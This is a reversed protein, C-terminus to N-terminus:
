GRVKRLHYPLGCGTDAACYGRASTYKIRTKSHAKSNMMPAEAFGSKDRLRSIEIHTQIVRRAIDEPLEPSEKNRHRSKM